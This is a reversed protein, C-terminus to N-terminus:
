GKQTLGDAAKEQRIVWGNWVWAVLGMIINALSTAIFIGVYGFLQNGVWAMPVYVVAMRMASMILNPLPRGLAIMCSGAVMGIGMFAFSVPVIQMFRHASEVVIPDSNVLLIIDDGLPALLAACLFGWVFCFKYSSSLSQQVRAPLRAGWNQGVFPAVSAALSSLLMTVLMDIRSAIGYGAVVEPGHGALLWIIVSLTVPGILSSLVSPLGIYLVQRCSQAFLRWQANRWRLLHEQGILVYLMVAMRLSGTVLMSWAAGMLGLRPFGLLGFILLPAVVISLLSTGSIAYGPIKANGVARLVSSAVMPLGFLPLSILYITMYGLVLPMIDPQTGILLFYDELFIFGLLCLAAVLLVSLLMTHTSLIEVSDRDRHGAARAIVSSAGTGIGMSIGSFGMVLPFTYSVAALERSGLLGIYFTEITWALIMSAMGLFMPLTLDVLHRTVSGRTLDGSYVKSGSSQNAQM